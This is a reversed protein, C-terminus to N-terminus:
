LNEFELNKAKLKDEIYKIQECILATLSDKNEPNITIEVQIENGSNNKVEHLVGKLRAASMSMANIEYSLKSAKQFAEKKM